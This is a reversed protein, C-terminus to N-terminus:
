RAGGAPTSTPSAEPGPLRGEQLALLQAAALEDSQRRKRRKDRASSVYMYLAYAILAGILVPIVVAKLDGSMAAAVWGVYPVAYWLKGRIQVPKVSEPDASPNNDGKTIFILEGSALRQQQTVRHTVLAGEGSKLQYTIVDGPKIQAPDVDRIVVLTGPPYNPEMSSTQVTLPTGGAVAPVVIAAAGVLVVVCLVVLTIGTLVWRLVRRAGRPRPKADDSASAANSAQTAARPVPQPEPHSEAAAQEAAATYSPRAPLPAPVSDPEAADPLEQAPSTVEAAPTPERSDSSDSLSQAQAVPSEQSARAEQETVDVPAAPEVETPPEAQEVSDAADLPGAPASPEPALGRAQAAREARIAERRTLPPRQAAVESGPTDPLSM